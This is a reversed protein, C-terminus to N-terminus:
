VCLFRFWIRHSVFVENCFMRYFIMEGSIMLIRIPTLTTNKKEHAGSLKKLMTSRKTWALSSGPVWTDEKSIKQFSSAPRKISSTASAKSSYQNVENKLLRHQDEEGDKVEKGHTWDAWIGDHLHCDVFMIWFHDSFITLFFIKPFHGPRSPSSIHIMYKEWILHILRSLFM